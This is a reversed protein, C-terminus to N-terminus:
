AAVALHAQAQAPREIERLRSVAPGALEVSEPLARWGERGARTLQDHLRVLGQQLRVADQWLELGGFLDAAARQPQASPATAQLGEMRGKAVDFPDPEAAQVPPEPMTLQAAAPFERPGAPMGALLERPMADALVAEGPLALAGAPLSVPVLAALAADDLDDVAARLQRSSSQAGAHRLHDRSTRTLRLSARAIQEGLASVQRVTMDVLPALELEPHADQLAELGEAARRMEAASRRLADHEALVGAAEEGAALTHSLDRARHELLDALAWAGAQRSDGRVALGAFPLLAELQPLQEDALADPSTALLMLAVPVRLQAALRYAQASEDWILVGVRRLDRLGARLADLARRDSELDEARWWGGGHALLRRLLTLREAPGPGDRRAGALLRGLTRLLEATVDPETTVDPEATM